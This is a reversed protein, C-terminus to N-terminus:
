DAGPMEGMYAMIHRGCGFGRLQKRRINVECVVAEFNMDWLGEGNGMFGSLQPEVINDYVLEGYGATIMNTNIGVFRYWFRFM